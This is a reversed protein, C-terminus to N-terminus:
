PTIEIENESIHLFTIFSIEEEDLDLDTELISPDYTIQNPSGRINASECIAGGELNVPNNESGGRFECTSGPAYLLGIYTTGGRLEVDGESHVVTTLNDPFGDQRNMDRNLDVSRNVWITVSHENAMNRIDVDSSPNFEGDVVITVNGGPNDVTFEEDLDQSAGAWYTGGEGITEGDQIVDCDTAGSDCDEVKQEIRSDLIPFPIGEESGPPVDGGRPNIGDEEVTAISHEFDEDFPVLLEVTVEQNEDDYQVGGDTREEFYSGWARYYRSGVTVEVSGDELPNTFLEEGEDPFIGTSEQHSSIVARDDLRNEGTITVIPLTLTASRYHFEPPSVMTSGLSSDSTRWVGGGQYAIIAGNSGEFRVEGLTVNDIVEFDESEDDPDFTINMWGATEDISYADRNSTPFKIRQRDSGELAVLASQSAFQTMTKEARENSLGDETDGIAVAGLSVVVLAGLLIVSFILIFGLTESQARYSSPRADDTQSEEGTNM